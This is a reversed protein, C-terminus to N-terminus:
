AAKGSGTDGPGGPKRAASRLAGITRNVDFLRAYLTRGCERLARRREAHSLVDMVQSAMGGSDGPDSLRVAGTERWIPETLAGTNTIVPVGLALAAMATTRRSSIGDPYPQIMVDCAAVHAALDRDSLTGSARISGRWGPHDALFTQAFEKSGTGLLLVRPTNKHNLLEVLVASLLPTILTGYTGLHGVVPRVDASRVNAVASPDPMGLSSPIPLWAFPIPRGLAYPKLVREWTPISVWVRAAAGLLVVAMVRHVAAAASQKWSGAWALFPEHVMLEVADGKAARQWLWICFPLNM